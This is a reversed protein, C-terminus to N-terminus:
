RQWRVRVLDARMAQRVTLVAGTQKARPPSPHLQEASVWHRPLLASIRGTPPMSLRATLRGDIPGTFQQAIGLELSIAGLLHRKDGM